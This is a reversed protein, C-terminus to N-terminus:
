VEGSKLLSTAIVMGQKVTTKTPSSLDQRHANKPKRM